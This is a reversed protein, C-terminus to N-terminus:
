VPVTLWDAHTELEAHRWSCTRRDTHSDWLESDLYLSRDFPLGVFFVGKGRKFKIRKLTFFIMKRQVEPGCGTGTHSMQVMQM